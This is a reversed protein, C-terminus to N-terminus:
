RREALLDALNAPGWACTLKYTALREPPETLQDRRALHGIRERLADLEVVIKAATQPHMRRSVVELARDEAETGMLTATVFRLNISLLARALPGDRRFRVARAADVDIRGDKRVVAIGLRELAMGARFTGAGDLGLHRGADAQDLGDRMLLFLHFLTPREALEREATAPIQRVDDRPRRAAEVVDDFSLGLAVCIEQLRSLKCDQAAFLRKVTPESIAMREALDAYTLGRSRLHDKLVAFITGQM